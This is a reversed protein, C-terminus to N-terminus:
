KRVAQSDFRSFSLSREAMADLETKLLRTKASARYRAGTEVPDLSRVFEELAKKDVVLLADRVDDVQRGTHKALVSVTKAPPLTKEYVPVVSYRNGAAVFPGEKSVRARIVKELDKKRADLVRALAHVAEREVCVAEIDEPGTAVIELKRSVADQYTECHNRHDCWPCLPSLRAPFERSAHAREALGVMYDLHAELQDDTREAPLEVGHRLMDFSFTVRRAWPYLARVAAVYASAQIDGAVEDQTFLMWGTKYDTVHVHDASVRDVRDIYGMLEFRGLPIEFQRETSLVAAHDVAGRRAFHGRVLELGDAYNDAGTLGTEQFAERYSDLVVDPPVVGAFEERVVWDYAGELAGHVATGFEAADGRSEANVRRADVYRMRFALPCQEYRRLKSVSVQQTM